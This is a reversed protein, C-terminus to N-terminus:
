DANGDILIEYGSTGSIGAHCTIDNQAYNPIFKGIHECSSKMESAAPRGHVPALWICSAQVPQFMRM